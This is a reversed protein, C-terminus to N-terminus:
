HDYIFYTFLCQFYDKLNFTNFHIIDVPHEATCARPSTNRHTQMTHCYIEVGESTSLLMEVAINKRHVNASVDSAQGCKLLFYESTCYVRNAFSHNYM